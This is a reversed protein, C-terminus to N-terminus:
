VGRAWRGSERRYPAHPTRVAVTLPGRLSM